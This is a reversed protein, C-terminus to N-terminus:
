EYDPHNEFTKYEEIQLRESKIEDSKELYKTLLKYRKIAPFFDKNSPVYLTFLREILIDKPLMSLLYESKIYEEKNENLIAGDSGVWEVCGHSLNNLYRLFLISYLLDQKSDDATFILNDLYRKDGCLSLYKDENVILLFDRIENKTWLKQHKSYAKKLAKKEWSFADLYKILHQTSSLGETDESFVNPIVEIEKNVTRDEVHVVQKPPAPTKVYPVMQVPLHVQKQEIIRPTLPAIKVEKTVSAKRKSVGFDPQFITCGSVLFLASSLIVINKIM